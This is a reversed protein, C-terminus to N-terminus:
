NCSLKTSRYAHAWFWLPLGTNHEVSYMEKWVRSKRHYVLVKEPTAFFVYESTQSIPMAGLLPLVVERICRLSVESLLPKKSWIGCGLDLVLIHTSSDTLWHLAGNVYVVQNKNMHSFHDDQFSIIKRWKNLESDFVLCLFNGVRRHFTGHYALVVKFKQSTFDCALGVLTAEGNNPSFWTM